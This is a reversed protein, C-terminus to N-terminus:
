DETIKINKISFNQTIGNETSGLCLGIAYSGSTSPTYSCTYTKYDTMPSTDIRSYALTAPPEISSIVSPNMFAIFPAYPAEYMGNIQKANYYDVSFTYKVGATLNIVDAIIEHGEVGTFICSNVGSTSDYAISSFAGEASSNKSWENMNTSISAMKTIDISSVTDIDNTIIKVSNMSGRDITSEESTYKWSTIINAISNLSSSVYRENYDEFDLMKDGSQNNFSLNDKVQFNMVPPAINFGSTTDNFNQNTPEIFKVLVDDLLETLSMYPPTIDTLKIVDEVRVKMDMEKFVQSLWYIIEAPTLKNQVGSLARTWYAIQDMTDGLIKYEEYQAM